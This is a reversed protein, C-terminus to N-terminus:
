DVLGSLKQISIIDKYIAKAWRTIEARNSPSYHAPLIGSPPIQIRKIRHSILTEDQRDYMDRQSDSLLDPDFEGFWWLLSRNLININEILANHAQKRKDDALATASDYGLKAIESLNLIANLYTKVSDLMSAVSRRIRNKCLELRKREEPDNKASNELDVKLAEEIIKEMHKGEATSLREASKAEHLVASQVDRRVEKIESDVLPYPINEGFLKPALHFKAANSLEEFTKKRNPDKTMREMLDLYYLM